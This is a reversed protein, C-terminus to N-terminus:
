FDLYLSIGNSLDLEVTKITNRQRKYLLSRLLQLFDVQHALCIRVTNDCGHHVPPDFSECVDVNEEDTEPKVEPVYMMSSYDESAM